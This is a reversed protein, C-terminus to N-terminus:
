KVPQIQWLQAPTQNCSWSQATAGDDKSGKIIDLCRGETHTPRLEFLDSEFDVLVTRWRMQKGGSCNWQQVKAGERTGSNEVELCKGSAVSRLEFSSNDVPVARWQQAITGNCTWQQAKVGNDLKARDIDLCKGSHSVRLQVIMEQASDAALSPSGSAHASGVSSQMLAASAALTIAIRNLRAM